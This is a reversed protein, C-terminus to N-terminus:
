RSELAPAGEPGQHSDHAFDSQYRSGQMHAELIRGIQAPLKALIVDM